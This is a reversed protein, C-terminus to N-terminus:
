DRYPNQNLRHFYENRTGKITRLIASDQPTLMGVLLGLQMRAGFSAVPARGNGDFGLFLALEQEQQKLRLTLLDALDADLVAESVIPLERPRLDRYESFIREERPFLDALWPEVKWAM